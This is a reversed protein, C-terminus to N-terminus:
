LTPLYVSHWTNPPSANFLLACPSPNKLSTFSNWIINSHHICWVTREDFGMSSQLMFFSFHIYVIFFYNLLNLFWLILHLNHCFFFQAVFSHFLKVSSRLSILAPSLLKPFSYLRYSKLCFSSYVLVTNWNIFHNRM